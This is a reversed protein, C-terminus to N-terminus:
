FSVMSQLPWLRTAAWTCLLIVHLWTCCETYPLLYFISKLNSHVPLLRINFCVVPLSSNLSSSHPNCNHSKTSRCSSRRHLPLTHIHLRLWSHHSGSTFPKLSVSKMWFTLIVLVVKLWLTNNRDKHKQQIGTQVSAANRKDSKSGTFLLIIYIKNYYLIIFYSAWTQNWLSLSPTIQATWVAM